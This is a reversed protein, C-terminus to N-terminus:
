APELSTMSIRLGWCCTSIMRFFCNGDGGIPKVEFDDGCVKSLGAFKLGMNKKLGKQKGAHVGPRAGPLKRCFLSFPKFKIAAPRQVGSVLIDIDIEELTQDEPEPEPQEGGGDALDALIQAASMTEDSCAPPISSTPTCSPFLKSPTCVHPLEPSVSPTCVHLLESSVSPTCVHLLESSVSPTCVHPPVPPKDVTFDPLTNNDSDVPTHVPIEDSTSSAYLVTSVDSPVPSTPAEEAENKNDSGLESESTNGNPIDPNRSVYRKLHNPPYSCRTSKGKTKALFVSLCMTAMGVVKGKWLRM